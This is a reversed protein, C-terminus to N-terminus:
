YPRRNAAKISYLNEQTRMYNGETETRGRRKMQVEMLDEVLVFKSGYTLMNTYGM